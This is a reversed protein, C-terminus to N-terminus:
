KKDSSRRNWYEVAQKKTDFWRVHVICERVSCAAMWQRGIKCIDPKSGCFPCSKLREMSGGRTLHAVAEGSNVANKAHILFM